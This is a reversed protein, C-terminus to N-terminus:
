KVKGKMSDNVRLFAIEIPINLNDYNQYFVDLEIIYQGIRFPMKLSETILFNYTGIENSLFNGYHLCQEMGSIMGMLFFGKSSYTASNWWIGNFHFTIHESFDHGEQVLNAYYNEIATQFLDSGAKVSSCVLVV